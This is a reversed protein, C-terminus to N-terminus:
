LQGLRYDIISASLAKDYDAMLEAIKKKFLILLKM